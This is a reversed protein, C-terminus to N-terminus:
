QSRVGRGPRVYIVPPPPQAPALVPRVVPTPMPAAPEPPPAPLSPLPAPPSEMAAAPAAQAIPTGPDIELTLEVGTSSTFSAPGTSDPFRPIEIRGARDHQNADLDVFDFVLPTRPTTVLSEGLLRNFEHSYQDSRGDLVAVTRGAQTVNVHIDPPQGLFGDWSDGNTKHRPFRVSIVRVRRPATADVVARASRPVRSFRVLIPRPEPATTYMRRMETETTAFLAESGNVPELGITKYSVLLERTRAYDAISVGGAVAHISLSMERSRETMSFHAEFLSGEYVASVYWEAGAPVTPVSVAPDMEHIRRVEWARYYGHRRAEAASIGGGFRWVRANVALEHENQVVQLVRDNTLRSIVRTAGERRISSGDGILPTFSANYLRGIDEPGIDDPIVAVVDEREQVVGVEQAVATLPATALSLAVLLGLLQHRALRHGMQRVFDAIV